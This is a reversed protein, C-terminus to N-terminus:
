AQGKKNAESTEYGPMANPMINDCFHCEYNFNVYRESRRRLYLCVSFAVIGCGAIYPLYPAVSAPIYESMDQTHFIHLM